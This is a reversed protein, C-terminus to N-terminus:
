AVGEETARPLRPSRPRAAEAIVARVDDESANNQLALWKIMEESPAEQYARAIVGRKGKPIPIRPGPVSPLPCIARAELARRRQWLAAQDNELDRIRQVKAAQPFEPTVAATRAATLEQEVRSIEARVGSLDLEM